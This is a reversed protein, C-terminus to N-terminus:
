TRCAAVEVPGDCPQFFRLDARRCNQIEGRIEEFKRLTQEIRVRPPRPTTRAVSWQPHTVPGGGISGATHPHSQNREQGEDQCETWRKRRKRLRDDVRARHLEIRGRVVIRQGGATLREHRSVIELEVEHTRRLRELDLGEALRRGPGVPLDAHVERRQQGRPRQGIAVIFGTHGCDARGAHPM